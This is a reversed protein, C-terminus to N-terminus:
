IYPIIERVLVTGAILLFLMIFVASLVMSAGVLIMVFLNM